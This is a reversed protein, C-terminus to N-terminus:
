TGDRRRLGRGYEWCKAPTQPEIGPAKSFARLLLGQDYLIPTTSLYGLKRVGHTPLGQPQNCLTERLDGTSSLGAKWRSSM